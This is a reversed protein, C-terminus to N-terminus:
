TQQQEKQPALREVLTELAALAQDWLRFDCSLQSGPLHHWFWQRARMLPDGPRELAAKLAPLSARLHNVAAANAAAAIPAMVEDFWDDVLKAIEM